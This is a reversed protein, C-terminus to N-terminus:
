LTSTAAQPVEVPTVVAYPDYVEVIRTASLSNGEQDTVSYTITFTGPKSTDLMIENVSKGDLALRVAYQQFRPNSIYVGLDAYATRVQIRAPNNGMVQIGSSSSSPTPAPAPAVSTNPAVESSPAASDPATVAEAVSAVQPEDVPLPTTVVPVYGPLTETTE